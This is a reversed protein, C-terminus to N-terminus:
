KVRVADTARGSTLTQSGAYKVIWTGSKKQTFRKTFTGKSTVTASGQYTAGRPGSPDFYVKVKKGQLPRIAGKGYDSVPNWYKLTGKVTVVAGKRVPEPSADVRLYSARKFSFIDAYRVDPLQCYHDWRDGDEDVGYVDFERQVIAVAKYRGFPEWDYWRPSTVKGSAAFKSSYLFLGGGVDNGYRDHYELDYNWYFDGWGAYVEGYEPYSKADFCARIQASTPKKVSYSVRVTKNHQGKYLVVDPHDVSGGPGSSAADAPVAGLGSLLLAGAVVM